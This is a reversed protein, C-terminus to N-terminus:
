RTKPIVNLSNLPYGFFSVMPRPTSSTGPNPISNYPERSMSTIGYTEYANAQETPPIYRTIDDPDDRQTKNTESTKVLVCKRTKSKGRDYIQKPSSGQGFNINRGPM